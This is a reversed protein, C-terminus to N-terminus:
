SGHWSEGCDLCHWKCDNWSFSKHPHSCQQLVAVAKELKAVRDELEHEKM